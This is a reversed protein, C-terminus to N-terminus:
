YSRKYKAVVIIAVALIAGLVGIWVFNTSFPNTMNSAPATTSEETIEPPTQNPQSLGPPAQGDQPIGQGPMGGGMPFGGQSNEFFALQDETIGLALLKEKVEDTLEGEAAQVIEMAQRMLDRDPMDQMPNNPNEEMGGEPMAGPVEGMGGEPKVGGGGGMGNSGLDSMDISSADILTSSDISQGETTAPITGDLQGAISEARLLNFDILTEVAQNFEDINYFATPDTEVYSAIKNQLNRVTEEFLGSEFYETVMKQLYQHYQSVYEENSLLANLLPRSEMTVGSLPTDIPANVIKSASGSQFGGYSLHYDWPLISIVGDREQIVYNQAMNSYYSDMSVLFTHAAFYRLVQDVNIYNEVNEGSSLAKLADIVNQQEALTVNQLANDFIAPTVKRDDDSYELSGRSGGGRGVFGQRDEWDETAPGASGSPRGTSRLRIRKRLCETEEAWKWLKSMTIIATKTGMSVCTTAQGMPNLPSM